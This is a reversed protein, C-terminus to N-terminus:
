NCEPLRSGLPRGKQSYRQVFPFHSYFEDSDHRKPTTISLTKISNWATALHAGPQQNFELGEFGRDEPARFGKMGSFPLSLGPVVGM